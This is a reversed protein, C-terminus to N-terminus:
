KVFRLRHFRDLRARHTPPGQRWYHGYIVSRNLTFTHHHEVSGAIDPLEPYISGDATTFKARMEAIGRRTM